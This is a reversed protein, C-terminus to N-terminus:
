VITDDTRSAEKAANSAESSKKESVRDPRSSPPKGHNVTRGESQRSLEKDTM